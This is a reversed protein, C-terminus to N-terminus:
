TRAYKDRWEKLLKKTRLSYNKSWENIKVWDFRNFSIASLDVAYRGFAVLNAIDVIAKEPEAIFFDGM